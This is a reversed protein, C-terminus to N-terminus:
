KEDKDKRKVGVIMSGRKPRGIAKHTTGKPFEVKDGPYFTKVGNKDIITLEGTLIVHVTHEDHTHEGSDFNSEIPCVRIDTFGEEKLKRIWEQKNM